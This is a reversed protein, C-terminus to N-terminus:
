TTSSGNNIRVSNSGVAECVLECVVALVRTSRSFTLRVFISLGNEVEDRASRGLLVSLDENDTATDGVERINSRSELTDNTSQLFELGAEDGVIDANENTTTSGVVLLTEFSHAKKSLRKTYGDLDIAWVSVDSLDDGDSKTHLRSALRDSGRM